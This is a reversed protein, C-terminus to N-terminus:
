HGGGVHYSFGSEIVVEFFHVLERWRDFKM